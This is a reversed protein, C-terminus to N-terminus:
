GEAIALRLLDELFVNSEWYDVKWAPLLDDLLLAQAMGSAYLQTEGSSTQYQLQFLEQSWRQNFKQYAKFDPDNQMEPLPRYDLSQSAKKLIAVEIYKATGEEWELWREYDILEAPLQYDKRRATRLALFQRVLDLKEHRSKARLAKALIMSEQKWEASFDAAIKEHATGLKHISEAKSMRDPAIEYQFAHFTEHLLGGMQTESPQILLRYPFIQKIPSPFMERFTDILFIDMTNKTAISASWTDGVKLAFNQPEVAARRFYANGHLDDNTIRSWESPPKNPYNFLFEYSRNWIIIPIEADGWGQWVQDGLTSKLHLSESFRAKDIPSLM